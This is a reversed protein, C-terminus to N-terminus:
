IRTSCVLPVVGIGHWANSHPLCSVEQTGFTIPSAASNGKLVGGLTVDGRVAQEIYDILAWTRAEAAARDDGELYNEVRLTLTYTEDLYDGGLVRWEPARVTPGSFFMFETADIDETETPESWDIHVANLAPIAKLRTLIAQKAAPATSAAV